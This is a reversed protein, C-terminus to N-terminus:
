PVLFPHKFFSVLFRRSFFFYLFTCFLDQVKTTKFVFVTCRGYLWREFYLRRLRPLWSHRRWYWPTAKGQGVGRQLEWRLQLGQLPQASPPPASGWMSPPSPPWMTARCSSVFQATPSHHDLGVEGPSTPGVPNGHLGCLHHHSFPSSVPTPVVCPRGDNESNPSFTELGTEGPRATQSVELDRRDWVAQKGRTSTPRPTLGPQSGRM